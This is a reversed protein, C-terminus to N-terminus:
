THLIQEWFKPFSINVCGADRITIGEIILGAVGFAMAIRHDDYSALSAGHLQQGGVFSYGDEYEEVEVGLLRLNAVLAAIRDTEKARLEKANHLTFTGDSFLAAITLAPIEDILAAVTEGHIHVNGKLESSRIVLDGLEEGNMVRKNEVAINCGLSQLVAIIETRSPNLGVDAIQIESNPVISAAVMFFTAASIDGPVLFSGASINKGGQITAIYKGDETRVHCGLMRETHDRTPISEIVTTEGDAFLGSFLIASKVQASAVPMEYRIANLRDVSQIQLPATNQVTGHIQAGMLRLPDMIRKMPRKSLSADGILTSSFKQGALIGSLLRMTTGSNGCDLDKGASKLGYLGKGHVVLVDNREEITIGLDSFCRRTSQPDAAASYGRIESVGEALSGIMMARHSISKDGPISYTGKLGKSTPIAIDM